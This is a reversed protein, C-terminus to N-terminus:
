EVPKEERKIFKEILLRAADMAADDWKSETETVKKEIIPDLKLWIKWAIDQWNEKIFDKIADM